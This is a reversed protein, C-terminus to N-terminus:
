NRAKRKGRRQPAKGNEWLSTPVHVRKTTVKGHQDHINIDLEVTAEGQVQITNLDSRLGSYIRPGLVHGQQARGLEYKFLRREAQRSSMQGTSVKNVWDWVQSNPDRVKDHKARLLFAHLLPTTKSQALLARNHQVVNGGQSGSSAMIAAVSAGGLLGLGLGLGAGGAAGAGEAAAAGGAAPLVKKAATTIGKGLGGGGGFLQGVVIAYIPHTPSSGPGANQEGQTKLTDEIAKAPLIARSAFGLGPGRGLM